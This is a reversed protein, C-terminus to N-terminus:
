WPGSVNGGPSRLVRPAGASPPASAPPSEGPAPRTARLLEDRVAALLASSLEPDLPNRSEPRNLTVVAMSGRRTVVVADSM